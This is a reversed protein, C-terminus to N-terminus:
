PASDIGFVPYLYFGMTKGTNKAVQYRLLSVDMRKLQKHHRCVDLDPLFLSKTLPTIM